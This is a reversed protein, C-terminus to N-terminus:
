VYVRGLQAFLWVGARVQDAEDDSFDQTMTAHWEDRLGTRSMLEGFWDAAGDNDWAEFGWMGM